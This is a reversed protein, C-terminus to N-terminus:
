ELASGVGQSFGAIGYCSGLVHCICRTSHLFHRNHRCFLGSVRFILFSVSVAQMVVLVKYRGRYFRGYTYFGSATFVLICILTLLWASNMYQEVYILLTARLDFASQPPAAIIEWMIRAVLSVLVAINILIVDAALRIFAEFTVRRKLHNLTTRLKVM